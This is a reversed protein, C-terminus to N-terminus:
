FNSNQLKQSKLDRHIIPPTLSHLYSMGSAIDKAFKLKSTLSISKTEEKHLLNFLTGGQINKFQYKIVEM